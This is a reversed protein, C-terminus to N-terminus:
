GWAARVVKALAWAFGLIFATNLVALGIVTLIPHRYVFKGWIPKLSFAM